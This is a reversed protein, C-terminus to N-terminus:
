ALTSSVNKTLPAWSQKFGRRKVERAVQIGWDQSPVERFRLSVYPVRIEATWGEEDVRGDSEWIFDPNFDISIGGFGGGRGRRLGEIWLGDTQLGLPNVYFVYAQRKDDFTDLMIRVWDDGFVARDREGLRALISSPDSDHARVGFYIAEHTYFVRLETSESSEIGEVPEYQTFGGLVAAEAWRAEDLRGDIHVSAEEFRPVQVDLQGARGSYVLSDAPATLAVILGLAALM